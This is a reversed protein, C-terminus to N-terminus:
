KRKLLILIYVTYIYHAKGRGIGFFDYDLSVALNHVGVIPRLVLPVTYQLLCWGCRLGNVERGSEENVGNRSTEQSCVADRKRSSSTM